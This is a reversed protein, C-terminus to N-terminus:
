FTPYIVTRSGPAITSNADISWLCDNVLVKAEFPAAADKTAWVWEDSSMNIMPVGRDWSLGPGDGRLFLANGFGIDIKAVVTSVCAAVEGNCCCESKEVVPSAPVIAPRAECECSCAEQAQAAVEKDKVVKKRASTKKTGSVVGESKAKAM